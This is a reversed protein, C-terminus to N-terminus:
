IFRECLFFQFLLCGPTKQYNRPTITINIPYRIRESPHRENIACLCPGKSLVTSTPPPSLHAFVQCDANANRGGSRCLVTRHAKLASLDGPALVAVCIRTYVPAFPIWVSLYQQSINSYQGSFRM